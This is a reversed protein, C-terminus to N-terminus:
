ITSYVTHVSLIPYLHINKYLLGYGKTYKGHMIYKCPQIVHCFTSVMCISQIKIKYKQVQTKSYM